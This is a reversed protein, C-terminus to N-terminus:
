NYYMNTDDTIYNPTKSDNVYVKVYVHKLSPNMDSVTKKLSQVFEHYNEVSINKGDTYAKVSLTIGGDKASNEYVDYRFRDLEFGHLGLAKKNKFGSVGDEAPTSPKVPVVAGPKGGQARHMFVAFHQRELKEQPLYKGGNGTTIGNTYMALVYEESWHGEVDSLNKTGKAELEYANTLVKAMQGRTLSDSVGFTGDGKGDVIGAQYVAQIEDHYQHNTPVDKFAVAARELEFNESRSLMAAMQGRTISDNPKFTGDPYGNIVGADAMEVVIDHTWLTSPVDKFSKAQASAANPVALALITLIGVGIKTTRNKM